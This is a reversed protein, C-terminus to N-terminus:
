RRKLDTKIEHLMTNAIDEDYSMTDNISSISSKNNFDWFVENTFQHILLRSQVFEINERNRHFLTVNSGNTFFSKGSDTFRAELIYRCM